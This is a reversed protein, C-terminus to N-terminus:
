TRSTTPWGCRACARWRPRTAARSGGANNVLVDVTEPLDTLAEEVAAPDTADFAVGRVGPVLALVEPRRGTIVVDLGRAVLDLAIARGIGTGGGTVVATRTM